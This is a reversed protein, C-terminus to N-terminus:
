LRVRTRLLWGGCRVRWLIPMMMLLGCVPIVLSLEISWVNRGNAFRRNHYEIGPFGWNKYRIVRSRGDPRPGYEIPKWDSGLESFLCLTGDDVRLYVDTGLLLPEKLFKFYQADVWILGFALLLVLSFILGWETIARRMISSELPLNSHNHQIPPNSSRTLRWRASWGSQFSVSMQCYSV